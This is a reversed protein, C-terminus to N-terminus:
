IPTESCIPCQEPTDSPHPHGLNILTTWCTRIMACTEFTCHAHISSTIVTHMQHAPLAHGPHDHFVPNDSM